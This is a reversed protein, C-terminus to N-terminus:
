RQMAKLFGPFNSLGDSVWCLRDDETFRLGASWNGNPEVAYGDQESIREVVMNLYREGSWHVAIQDGVRLALRDTLPERTVDLLGVRYVPFGNYVKWGLKFSRAKDAPLVTLETRVPIKGVFHQTGSGTDDDSQDAM